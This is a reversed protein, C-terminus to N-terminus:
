NPTKNKKFKSVLKELWAEIKDALSQKGQTQNGNAAATDTTNTAGANGGTTNNGYTATAAGTNSTANTNGFGEATGPNPANSYAGATTNDTTDVYAGTTGATSTNNGYGSTNGYGSNVTSDNVGSTPVSDYTGGGSNNYSSDTPITSGATTINGEYGQQGLDNQQSVFNDFNGNMNDTATSNAINASM